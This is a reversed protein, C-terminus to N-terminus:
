RQRFWQEQHYFLSYMVIARRLPFVQNTPLMVLQVGRLQVMVEGEEAFAVVFGFDKGVADIGVTFSGVIFFFYADDSGFVFEIYLQCGATSPCCSNCFFSDSFVTEAM